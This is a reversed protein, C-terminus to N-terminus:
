TATGVVRGAEIGEDSGMGRGVDSGDEKGAGKGGETVKAALALVGTAGFWAVGRQYDPAFGFPDGLEGEM